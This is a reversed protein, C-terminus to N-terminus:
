FSCTRMLFDAGRVRLKEQSRASSVPLVSFAEEPGAESIRMEAGCNGSVESEDICICRWGRRPVGKSGQLWVEQALAKQWRKGGTTTEVM